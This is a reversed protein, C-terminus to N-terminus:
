AIVGRLSGSLTQNSGEFNYIQINNVSYHGEWIDVDQAGDDNTPNVLLRPEYYGM